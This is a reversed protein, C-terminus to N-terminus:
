VVVQVTFNLLKLHCFIKNIFMYYINIYVFVIVKNTETKKAIVLFHFIEIEVLTIFVYKKHLM